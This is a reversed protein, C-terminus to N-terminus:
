INATPVSLLADLKSIKTYCIIALNVFTAPKIILANLVIQVAYTAGPMIIVITMTMAM